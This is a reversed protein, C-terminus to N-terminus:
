RQPLLYPVLIWLRILARPLEPSKNEAITVAAPTPVTVAPTLSSVSPLLACTLCFAGVALTAFSGRALRVSLDRTSRAPSLLWNYEFGFM